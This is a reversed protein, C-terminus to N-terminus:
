CAYINLFMIVTKLFEDVFYLYIKGAQSRLHPFVLSLLWLNVLYTEGKFSFKISQRFSTRRAPSRDRSSQM